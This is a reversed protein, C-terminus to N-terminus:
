RKEGVVSQQMERTNSRPVCNAEYLKTLAASESKHGGIRGGPVQIARAPVYCRLQRTAGEVSQQIM